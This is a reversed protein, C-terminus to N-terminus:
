LEDLKHAVETLRTRLLDIESRLENIVLDRSESYTRASSLQTTLFSITGDKIRREEDFAKTLAVLQAEAATVSSTKIKDGATGAAVLGEAEEVQKNRKRRREDFLYKTILGPIGLGVITSIVWDLTSLGHM